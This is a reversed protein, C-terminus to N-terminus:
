NWNENTYRFGRFGKYKVPDIKNFKGSRVLFKGKWIKGTTSCKFTKEQVDVLKMWGRVAGRWVVYVRCGVIAKVPLSQVKFNMVHGGSEVMALEKEYEKWSIEKPLTIILNM